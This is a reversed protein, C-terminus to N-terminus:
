CPFVDVGFSSCSTGGTRRRPLRAMAGSSLGRWRSAVPQSAQAVKAACCIGTGSAPGIGLDAGSRQPRFGCTGRRRLRNRLVFGRCNCCGRLIHKLSFLLPEGEGIYRFVKGIISKLALGTECPQAWDIALQEGQEFSSALDNDNRNVVGRRPPEIPERAAVHHCDCAV